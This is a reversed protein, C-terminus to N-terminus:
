WQMKCTCAIDHIMSVHEQKTVTEVERLQQWALSTVLSKIEYAKMNYIFSNFHGIIFYYCYCVSFIYLTYNNFFSNEKALEIDHNHRKCFYFFEKKHQFQHVFDKVPKPAKLFDPVFDFSQLSIPFKLSDTLNEFYNIFATNVMFYMILKYKTDQCAALSELLFHNEAEINCHCLVSQNLFVYPFSPIKLPIDNNVNHDIHQNNPWNELITENGGDFVAPKINTKNFYYTFNCNEKIIESM